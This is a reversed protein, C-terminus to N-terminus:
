LIACFCDDTVELLCMPTIRNRCLQELFDIAKKSDFTIGGTEEKEMLNENKWKEVAIEYAKRSRETLQISIVFYKLKIKEKQTETIFETDRTFIVEKKM